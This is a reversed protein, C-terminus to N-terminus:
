SVILLSNEIQLGRDHLQLEFRTEGWLLIAVLLLSSSLSPLNLYVKENAQLLRVQVLSASQAHFIYDQTTVANM